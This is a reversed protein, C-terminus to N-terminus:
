NRRTRRSTRRSTRRRRKKGGRMTINMNSGNNNNGNNNNNNNNNRPELTNLSVTAFMRGGGRTFAIDATNNDDDISIIVAPRGNHYVKDGENFRDRPDAM